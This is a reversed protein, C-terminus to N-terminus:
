ALVQIDLLLRAHLCGPSSCYICIGSVSLLKAPRLFLSLNWHVQFLHFLPLLFQFFWCSGSSASADRNSQHYLVTRGHVSRTVCSQNQPHNGHEAKCVSVLLKWRDPLPNWAQSVMGEGVGAEGQELHRFSSWFLLSLAKSKFASLGPRLKVKAM